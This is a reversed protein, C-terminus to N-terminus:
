SHTAQEWTFHHCLIILHVMGGVEILWTANTKRIGLSQRAAEIKEADQTVIIHGAFYSNDGTNRAICYVEVDRCYLLYETPNPFVTDILNLTVDHDENVEIYLTMSIIHLPFPREASNHPM